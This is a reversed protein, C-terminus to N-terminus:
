GRVAGIDGRAGSCGWSLTVGAILRGTSLERCGAPCGRACPPCLAPVPAAGWRGMFLLHACRRALVQWGGAM